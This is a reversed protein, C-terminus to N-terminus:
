GELDSLDGRALDFDFMKEKKRVQMVWFIHL